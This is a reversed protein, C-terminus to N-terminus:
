KDNVTFGTFAKGLEDMDHKFESKFTQWKDTGEDKYDALKVKLENNRRELEDLKKQLLAKNEKNTDDISVKLDAISKEYAGIQNEFKIKFQQMETLSDQQALNLDNKADLVAEQKDKLKDEANKVKQSPSLCGTLISGTIFATVALTLIIKKM